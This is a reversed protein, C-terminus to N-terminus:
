KSDCFLSFLIFFDHCISLFFYEGKRIQPVDYEENSKPFKPHHKHAADAAVTVLIVLLLIRAM